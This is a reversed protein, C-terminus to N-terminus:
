KPAQHRRAPCFWKTLGARTRTRTRVTDMLSGDDATLALNNEASYIIVEM